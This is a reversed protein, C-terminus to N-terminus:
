GFILKGSDYRKMRPCKASPTCSISVHWGNSGGSLKYCHGECGYHKCEKRYLERERSETM